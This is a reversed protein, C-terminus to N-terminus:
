CRKVSDFGQIVVESEVPMCGTHNDSAGGSLVTLSPKQSKTMSTLPASIAPWCGLDESLM